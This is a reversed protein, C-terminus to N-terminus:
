SPLSILWPLMWVLGFFCRFFAVQFPHMDTSMFKILGGMASFGVGALVMWFACSVPGSLAAFSTEFDSIM